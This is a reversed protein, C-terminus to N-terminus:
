TLITAMIDRGEQICFQIYTLALELGDAESRSGVELALTYGQRSTVVVVRDKSEMPAGEYGRYLGDMDALAIGKQKKAGRKGEPMCCLRLAALDLWVVRARPMLVALREIYHKKAPFGAALRNLDMAGVGAARVHARYEAIPGVEEACTGPPPPPPTAGGEAAAAVVPHPAGCTACEMDDHSNLVRPPRWWPVPGAEAMAANSKEHPGQDQTSEGAAAGLLVPGVVAAVCQLTQTQGQLAEHYACPQGSVCQCPETRQPQRSSGGGSSIEVVEAEEPLTAPTERSEEIVAVSKTPYGPSRLSTNGAEIERISYDDRVPHILMGPVVHERCFKPKEGGPFFAFKPAVKCSAVECRKGTINESEEQAISSPNM